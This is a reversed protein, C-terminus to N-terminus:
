CRRDKTKQVVTSKKEHNEVCFISKRRYTKCLSVNRRVSHYTKQIKAYLRTCFRCM